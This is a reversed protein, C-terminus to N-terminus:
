VAITGRKIDLWFRFLERFTRIVVKINNGKALGDKRKYFHIPVQSFRYKKQEAKYMLEPLFLCSFPDATISISDRVKKTYMICSSFEKLKIGFLMKCILHFVLSNFKRQFSEQNVTRFGVVIDCTKIKEMFKEVENYNFQGDGPGLFICDGKANKYCSLMAGSFGKNKKHHIIKSIEKNNKKLKEMTSGTKDRSGDDVLLLDFSVNLKRMASLVNQIVTEINKEENYAPITITLHKKM